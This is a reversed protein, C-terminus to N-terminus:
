WCRWYCCRCVLLCCADWPFIVVKGALLKSSYLLDCQGPKQCAIM